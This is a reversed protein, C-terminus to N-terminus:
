SNHKVKDYNTTKNALAVFFSSPFPWIMNSLLRLRNIIMKSKAGLALILYVIQQLTPCLQYTHPSHVSYGRRSGM